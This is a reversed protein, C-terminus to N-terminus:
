QFPDFSIKDLMCCHFLKWFHLPSLHGHRQGRFLFLILNLIGDSFVIGLNFVLRPAAFRNLFVAEPPNLHLWECRRWIKVLFLVLRFRCNRLGFM